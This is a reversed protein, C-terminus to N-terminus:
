TSINVFFQALKLDEMDLSEVVEFLGSVEEPQHNYINPNELHKSGSISIV